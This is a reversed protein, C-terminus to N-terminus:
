HYIELNFLIHVKEFKKEVHVLSLLVYTDEREKDLNYTPIMEGFETYYQVKPFCFIDRLRVIIFITNKPTSSPHLIWFKGKQTYKVKGGFFDTQYHVQGKSNVMIEKPSKLMVVHNKFQQYWKNNFVLHPSKTSYFEKTLNDNMLNNYNKVYAQEKELQKRKMSKRKDRKKYHDYKKPVEGDDIIHLAPNFQVKGSVKDLPLGVKTKKEM